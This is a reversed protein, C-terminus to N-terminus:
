CKTRKCAQGGKNKEDEDGAGARKERTQEGETRESTKEARSTFREGARQRIEQFVAEQLTSARTVAM